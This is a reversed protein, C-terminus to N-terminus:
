GKYHVHACQPRKRTKKKRGEKGERGEGGREEKEREVTSPISSLGGTPLHKVVLSCGWGRKKKKQDLSASSM